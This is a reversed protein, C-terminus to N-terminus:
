VLQYGGDVVITQGTIHQNQILFLVAQVIESPMGSRKLPLRKILRDWDEGNINESKLILGPAISNVRIQPALSKALVRTQAELAAKSVSYAPYGTWARGAGSDTINIINGGELGMVRAAEKSCFWPARLNLNFVSDWEEVTMAQFPINPMTAASNVLVSLPEDLRSIENFLGSIEDPQTLDAGFSYVPQGLESIEAATEAVRNSSHHFHLGIAFGNQALGCAIEKGLRTAAGTVLALKRIKLQEQSV